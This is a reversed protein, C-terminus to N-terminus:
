FSKRNPGTPCFIKVFAHHGGGICSFKRCFLKESVGFHEGIFNKPVTLCFSESPFDHYGGERIWLINKGILIKRFCLITGQCLKKPGTLYFFNQCFRSAEGRRQKFIESALIREFCLLTRRRFKDASHSLFKEVTSLSIGKKHMVNQSVRFKRFCRLTGWRFKKTSHSLFNEVTFRSIGGGGGRQHM